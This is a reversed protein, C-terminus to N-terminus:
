AVPPLYSPEDAMWGRMAPDFGLMLTKVLVQGARLDPDHMPAEVCEFNATSVAGVPRTKLVWQRNINHM